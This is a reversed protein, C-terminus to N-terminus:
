NLEKSMDLPNEGHNIIEMMQDAIFKPTAYYYIKEVESFDLTKGKNDLCFKIFKEANERLLNDDQKLCLCLSYDKLIEVNVDDDATYFHVIPKGASMYEFIKSPVQLNDINGVCILVDSAYVANNAEDKPVFGHDIIGGMSATTYREIIDTCNGYTYLHVRADMQPLIHAMIKLFCEPNRIIKDFVGAYTLSMSGRELRISIDKSYIKKLMPHETFVINDIYQEYDLLHEKLQNVCFVKSSINLMDKEIKMNNKRKLCMNWEARHLTHSEVFPDFLYPIMKTKNHKYTYEMGAVVAEMPLCFPIIVDIPDNINELAKLYSNIWAEKLSVRSFVIQLYEKARVANLLLTYWKKFIGSSMKIKENLKLRIDWWRHSIRIINQGQCEDRESQEIRSKMCVVTVKNDKKM